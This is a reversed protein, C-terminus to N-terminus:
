HISLNRREGEVDGDDDIYPATTSVHREPAAEQREFSCVPRGGAARDDGRM